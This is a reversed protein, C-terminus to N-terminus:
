LSKLQQIPMNKLEEETRGTLKSLEPWGHGGVLHGDVTELLDIEIFKFGKLVSDEFAEFSNTYVFNNVGGGHAIYMADGHVFSDNYFTKM